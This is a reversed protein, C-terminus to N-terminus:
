HSAMETHSARCIDAFSLFNPHRQGVQMRQLKEFAESADDKCAALVDPVLASLSSFIERLSQTASGVQVGVSGIDTM